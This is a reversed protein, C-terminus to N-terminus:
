SRSDLWLERARGEFDADDLQDYPDPDSSDRVNEIFDMFDEHYDEFDEYDGPSLHGGDLVVAGGLAVVPPLTTNISRFQKAREGTYLSKRTQWKRFDQYNGDTGNDFGLRRADAEDVEAQKWADWGGVNDRTEILELGLMQYGVVKVEIGQTKAAAAIRDFVDELDVEYPFEVEQYWWPVTSVDEPTFFRSRDLEGRLRDNSVFEAGFSEAVGAIFDNFDPDRLQFDDHGVCIKLDDLAEDSGVFVEPEPKRRKRPRPPTDDPVARTNRRVIRVM